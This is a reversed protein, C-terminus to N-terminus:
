KGEKQSDGPEIRYNDNADDETSVELVIGEERATLRHPQGPELTRGYGPSLTVHVTEGSPTHRLELDFVGSLIYWTEHKKLHFHLSMRGGKNFHLLKGCYHDNSAFIEEKGWGKTVEGIHHTIM